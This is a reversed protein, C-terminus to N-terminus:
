AHRRSALWCGAACVAAFVAAWVAYSGTVPLASAASNRNVFVPVSGDATNYRVKSVLSGEGNDAVEVTVTYAKRDFAISKDTSTVDETIRYTRIGPTSYTLVPFEVKGTRDNTATVCGTSTNSDIIECASFGFEGGKLNFETNSQDFYKKSAQLQATANAPTYTNEWESTVSSDALLNGNTNTKDTNIYGQPIDVENVTYTTGAPIGKITKQTNGKVEITATGSEDFTVGDFTGSLPSADKKLTVHFKFTKQDDDTIDSWEPLVVKKSITLEAPKTENRFTTDGLLQATAKM